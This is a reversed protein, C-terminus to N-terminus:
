LCKRAIETLFPDKKSADKLYNTIIQMGNPNNLKLKKLESEPIVL